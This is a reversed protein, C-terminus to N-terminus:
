VFQLISPQLTIKSYNEWTAAGQLPLQAPKSHAVSGVTCLLQKRETQQEHSTQPYRHTTLEAVLWKIPRQQDRAQM